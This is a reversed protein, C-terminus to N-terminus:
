VDICTSGVSSLVKQYTLSYRGLVVDPPQYVRMPEKLSSPQMLPPKVKVREGDDAVTACPTVVVDLTVRPDVVFATFKVAIPQGLDATQENEGAVLVLVDERLTVGLVSVGLPAYAMITEPFSPDKVLVAVNESCTEGGAILRPVIPLKATVRPPLALVVTVTDVEPAVVTLKVIEPKGLPTVADKEGLVNVVELAVDALVVSVNLALLPALAPM